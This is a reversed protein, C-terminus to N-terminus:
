LAGGPHVYPKWQLKARPAEIELDQPLQSQLNLQPLAWTPHEQLVPNPHLIENWTAGRGLYALRSVTLWALFRKSPYCGQAGVGQVGVRLCVAQMRCWVLNYM